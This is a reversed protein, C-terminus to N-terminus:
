NTSLTFQGQCKKAYDYYTQAAVFTYRYDRWGLSHMWAALRLNRRNLIKNPFDAARLLQTAQSTVRHKNMAVQKARHSEDWQYGLDPPPPLPCPEHDPYAQWPVSMVVSPFQSLWKLYFKHRLCWDLNTRMVSTVFQGDFFPMQLELRHQDINEFHVMLKRRQDNLALFLYFNRGPDDAHFQDLEERISQKLLERTDGLTDAHFLKSPIHIQERDLYVEIASDVQGARMLEIISENLHVLGLLVSGGEGSWVLRPREPAIPSGREQFEEIAKAMLASFDPSRDIEGWSTSVHDSELKEAFQNGFYHDQTGPKAFNATQLRVGSQDLAAVVCRSDLGGSLYATTAKDSRLRRSVASRFNDYVAALRAREPESSVEIEDWRWYCHRSTTGNRVELVEAPKLLSVGAYPTRDSLPVELGVLETVARLDMKKPVLPCEELIRLASAFVVLDDNIWYYLPRVGLKDTILLLRGSRPQYHVMSFTGGAKSLVDWRDKLCQDHITILDQLRTSNGSGSLLPEGAVLSFAGISDVHAGSEGFAGIDVKAFYSSPGRFSTVEDTVERSISRALGACAPEPLPANRRSLIGALLTM